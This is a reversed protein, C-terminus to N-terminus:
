CATHGHLSQSCAEQSPDLLYIDALGLVLVLYRCLIRKSQDNGQKSASHAKVTVAALHSSWNLGQMLIIHESFDKQVEELEHKCSGKKRHKKENLNKPPSFEEPQENRNTCCYLFWCSNLWREGFDPLSGLHGIPSGTPGCCILLLLDLQLDDGATWGCALGTM